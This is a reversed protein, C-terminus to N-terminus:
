TAFRVPLFVRFITGSKGPRTATRLQIRGRHNQVIEKVIWLGLGNGEPKTTKFSEFLEKRMMEAIGSGNDAVTVVAEGRRLIVRVHLNGSHPLADVANLLLNTVVQFIEGRRVTALVRDESRNEVNIRKSSIKVRHLHLAANALEVLDIEKPWTLGFSASVRAPSKGWLVFNLIPPSSSNLRRILTKPM